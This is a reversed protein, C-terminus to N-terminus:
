PNYSTLVKAQKSKPQSFLGIIHACWAQKRKKYCIHPSFNREADYLDVQNAKKKGFNWMSIQEQLLRIEYFTLPMYLLVLLIAKRKNM